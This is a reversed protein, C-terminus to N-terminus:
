AGKMIKALAQAHYPIPVGITYIVCDNPEVVGVFAVSPGEVIFLGTPDSDAPPSPAGVAALYKLAETKGVISFIADKTVHLDNLAHNRLNVVPTCGDAFAPALGATFILAAFIFKLM